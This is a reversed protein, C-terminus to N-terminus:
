ILTFPIREPYASTQRTKVPEDRWNWRGARDWFTAVNKIKSGYEISSTLGVLLLVSQPRSFAVYYLRVLDDFTRDIDSRTKRLKGIATHDALHSEMLVTSSPSTPFRRFAQKAHNIKFESGVDVIVLPFELGKAQHITMISLRNRPISFLLDEDIDVVGEAIPALLDSFISARSREDHPAKNLVALSYPSYNAGQAVCRLIAELYVLHEPDSQFAPIWAILKYFLDLLPIDEPWQDKGTSKERWTKVFQPLGAVKTKPDPNSEVFAIGMNRWQGIYNVAEQTLRGIEVELRNTKDLCLVLLGLLSQVLPVDRLAQGRPNFVGMGQRELDLRLLSPLRPNGDDKFEKVSSSLLVADGLAGEKPDVCIITDTDPVAFGSGGFVNQLLSAISTALEAQSNRFMGLVNAGNEPNYHRILPKGEIRAGGFSADFTAFSNFFDIISPTSRHNIALYETHIPLSPVADSIRKKFNTFLEVTAGRFRYLAQDDDGVITISAGSRKAVEFYIAEQLPNTDQYEDILLAKVEAIASNPYLRGDAFGTLIAEACLSFDYLTKDRLYARYRDLMDSQFLRAAAHEGPKSKFSNQDVLDQILRDNITQSIDAASTQNRIPMGEFTYQQFYQNLSEKRGSRYAPGFIKRRYIFKAAFAELMIPSPAGVGKTAGLWKQCFSDLTGVRCLTVDISRLWSTTEPARNVAVFHDVLAIGWDMLRTRLEASAKNTFTTILVNEPPMGDVLMHRLARLVLVTTKGSGPGAVIMLGSQPEHRVCAEQPANLQKRLVSHVAEFYEEISLV